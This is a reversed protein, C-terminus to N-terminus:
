HNKWCFIPFFIMFDISVKALIIVSIKIQLFIKLINERHTNTTANAQRATICIQQADDTACNEDFGTQWLAAVAGGIFALLLLLLFFLLFLLLQLLLCCLYRGSSIVLGLRHAALSVSGEQREDQKECDQEEEQAQRVTKVRSGAAM